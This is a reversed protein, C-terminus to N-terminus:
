NSIVILATESTVQSLGKSHGFNQCLVQGSGRSRSM